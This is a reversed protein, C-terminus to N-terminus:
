PDEFIPKQKNIVNDTEEDGFEEEEYNEDETCMEMDIEGGNGDDEEEEEESDEM